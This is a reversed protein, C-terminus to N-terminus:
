RARKKKPSKKKGSAGDDGTGMALDRRRRWEEREEAKKRQSKELRKRFDMENKLQAREREAYDKIEKDVEAKARIWDRDEQDEREAQLRLPYSEIWLNEGEDEKQKALSRNNTLSNYIIELNTYDCQYNKCLELVLLTSNSRISEAFSACLEKSIQCNFLSLVTLSQNVSLSTALMEANNTSDTGLNNNDLNINALAQNTHLVIGLVLATRWTLRNNNLQLVKISGNREVCKGILEGVEDDLGMYSLDLHVLQNAGSLQQFLPKAISKEIEIRIYTANERLMQLVKRFCKGGRARKFARIDEETTGLPDPRPKRREREQEANKREVALKKQKKERERKKAQALDRKLKLDAIM